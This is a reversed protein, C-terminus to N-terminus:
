GLTVSPLVSLDPALSAVRKTPPKTSFRNRQRSSLALVRRDHRAEDSGRLDLVAALGVFLLPIDEACTARHLYHGQALGAGIDALEELVARSEVGEAVITMGLSDALRVAFEVIRHDTPRICVNAVFSEDIKIEDFPASQLRSLTADGTGFDDLSLRAGMAGLTRLADALADIDLKGIRETVELTLRDAPLENCSLLDAICEPLRDDMLACPAINVSMPIDYGDARWAAAQGIAEELSFRTVATAVMASALGGAMLPLFGSPFLLGKDPHEWRMLAEVGQPQRTSSDVILQYHLKLEDRELGGLLEAASVLFGM